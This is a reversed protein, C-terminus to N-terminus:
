KPIFFQLICKFKIYVFDTQRLNEGFKIIELYKKATGNHFLLLLRTCIQIYTIQLVTSWLIMFDHCFFNWPQFDFFDNLPISTHLTRLYYFILFVTFTSQGQIQVDDDVVLTSYFLRSYTTWKQTFILKSIGYFDIYKEFIFDMIYHSFINRFWINGEVNKQLLSNRSRLFKVKM